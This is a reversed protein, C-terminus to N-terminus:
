ILQTAEQLADLRSPRLEGEVGFQRLRQELAQNAGAIFLTRGASQAEEVMREIALAATVGIRPVETLDLILVSYSQILGMRASIGKAAGFSLPGRLRFLMLAKGCRLILAEEEPSLNAHRPETADSPNDQEMGELQSRTISDVTLLNAVFMGVLVGWILDWFVTM